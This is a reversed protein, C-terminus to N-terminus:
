RPEGATPVPQSRTAARFRTELREAPCASAAGPGFSVPAEEWLQDLAKLDDPDDDCAQRLTELGEADPKAAALSELAEFVGAYSSGRKVLRERIATIIHLTQRLVGRAEDRPRTALYELFLPLYDPLENAMIALGGAEYMARLDVMAQGRDRSEGHIHEFLHLSLSRTRDFLFVYREQLDMLDHEALEDVLATLRSRSEATLDGDGAIAQRLEAAAAPIEEDPYRLLISLIQFVRTM